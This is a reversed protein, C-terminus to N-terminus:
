TLAKLNKKVRASPVAYHRRLSSVVMAWRSSRVCMEVLQHLAPRGSATQASAPAPSSTADGALAASGSRDRLLGVLAEEEPPQQGGWPATSPFEAVRQALLPPM